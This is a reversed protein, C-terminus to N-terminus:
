PPTESSWARRILLLKREITRSVVNLRKAIEDNTYGELKALAIERLVPDKLVSLLRDLEERVQMSFEPTPEAGVIENWGVGLREKNAHGVFASDGRVQGAGRKQRRIYQAFDAAKRATIVVLIKWLDYRDGLQPFRGARIGQCFSDFASLAIDEEDAMRRPVGQMKRAALRVLQPYYAYWLERAACEDGAELAQLWNSIAPNTSM